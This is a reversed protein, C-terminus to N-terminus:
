FLMLWGNLLVDSIGCHLFVTTKNFFKLVFYHAGFAWTCEVVTFVIAVIVSISPRWLMYQHWLPSDTQAHTYSTLLPGMNLFYHLNSSVSVANMQMPGLM